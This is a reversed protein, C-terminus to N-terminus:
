KLPTEMNILHNRLEEGKDKQIFYQLYALRINTINLKEYDYDVKEIGYLNRYTGKVVFDMGIGNGDEGNPIEYGDEDRQYRRILRYMECRVSHTYQLKDTLEQLLDEVLISELIDRMYTWVSNGDPDGDEDVEFLGEKVEDRWESKQLFNYIFDMLNLNVEEITDVKPEEVEEILSLGIGVMVMENYETEIM